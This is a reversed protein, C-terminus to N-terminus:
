YIGKLMDQYYADYTGDRRMEALGANFKSVLEATQPHTKSFRLYGPVVQLPKPDHTFLNKEKQSFLKIDALLLQAAIEEMPFADLDGKLLRRFNHQDLASEVVKLKGSRSLAKLEATYTYGRTIGFRLATLDNLTEWKPLPKSKLHFILESHKSLPESLVYLHDANPDSFWFSSVQATGDNLGVEAKKWSVYDFTVQVGKRAFAEKVVRNIFGGHISDNTTWPKYESSLIRVPEARVMCSFSSFCILLVFLALLASTSKTGHKM